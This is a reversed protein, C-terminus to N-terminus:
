AIGFPLFNVADTNTAIANRNWAVSTMCNNFLLWRSDIYVVETTAFTPANPTRRPNIGACVIRSPQAATKTITAFIPVFLSFGSTKSITIGALMASFLATIQRNVVDFGKM